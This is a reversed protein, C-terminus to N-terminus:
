DGELGNLLVRLSLGLFSGKVGTGLVSVEVLVSLVVLPETFGEGNLIPRTFISGFRWNTEWLVFTFTELVTM